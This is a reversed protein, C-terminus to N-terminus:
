TLTVLVPDETHLPLTTYISNVDSNPSRGISNTTPEVSENPVDGITIVSYWAPPYESVTKHYINKFNM